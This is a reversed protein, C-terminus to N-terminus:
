RSKRRNDEPLKRTKCKVNLDITWKSNIKTCHLDLIAGGGWGRKPCPSTWNSWCLKIFLQDKSWQVAKVVENFILQSKNTPINVSEIRNWQNIRKKKRELIVRRFVTYKYHRLTPYHWDESQQEKITHYSNQRKLRRTVM